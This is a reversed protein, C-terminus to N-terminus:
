RFVGCRMLSAADVIDRYSVYQVLPPARMISGPDDTHDLGIAHGLEHLLVQGRSSPSLSDVVSIEGVRYWTDSLTTGAADVRGWDESPVLVVPHGGPGDSVVFAPPCGLAVLHRNWIGAAEAVQARWTPDSGIPRLKAVPVDFWFRGGCSVAILLILPM